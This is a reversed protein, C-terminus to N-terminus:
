QKKLLERVFAEIEEDKEDGTFTKVKKGSQDFVHTLPPTNTPFEKQNKEHNEDTDILLFNPFRAEVKKLFAIVGDKNDAEDISLSLVVLGDKALEKHM